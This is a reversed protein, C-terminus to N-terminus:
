CPIGFLFHLGLPIPIHSYILKHYLMLSPGKLLGLEALVISTGWSMAQLMKAIEWFALMISSLDNSSCKASVDVMSSHSPQVPLLDQKLLVIRDCCDWFPYVLLVASGHRSSIIISTRLRFMSCKKTEKAKTLMNLSRSSVNWSSDMCYSCKCASYGFTEQCTSKGHLFVRM